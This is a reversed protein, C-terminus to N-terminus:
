NMEHLTNSLDGLVVTQENLANQIAQLNDNIIVDNQNLGIIAGGMEELQVIIGLNTNATSDIASSLRNLESKTNEDSIILNDLKSNLVSTSELAKSSDAKLMIISNTHETLTLGMSTLTNQAAQMQQNLMSIAVNNSQDELDDANTNNTIASTLSLINETNQATQIQLNVVEQQIVFSMNSLNSLNSTTSVIKDSLSSLDAEEAKLRTELTSIRDEVTNLQTLMTTSQASLTGIGSATLDIKGSLVSIGEVNARVLTEVGSLREKLDKLTSLNKLPSFDVTPIANLKVRDITTITFIM